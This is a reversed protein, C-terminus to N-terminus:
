LPMGRPARVEEAHSVNGFLAWLLTFGFCVFVHLLSRTTVIRSRQILNCAYTEFDAHRQQCAPLRADAGSDNVCALQRESM